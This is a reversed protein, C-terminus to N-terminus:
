YTFLLNQKECLNIICRSVVNTGNITLQFGETTRLTKGKMVWRVSKQDGIWPIITNLDKAWTRFRSYGGLEHVAVVAAAVAFDM